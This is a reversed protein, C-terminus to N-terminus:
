YNAQLVKEVDGQNPKGSQQKILRAAGMTAKAIEPIAEIPVNYTSLKYSIGMDDLLGKEAKVALRAGEIDPMADPTEGM